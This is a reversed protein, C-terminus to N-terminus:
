EVPAIFQLLDQSSFTAPVKLMCIMASHPSEGKANMVQSFVIM